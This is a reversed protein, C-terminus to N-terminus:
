QVTATLIIPTKYPVSTSSIALTTTTNTLTAARAVPVLMALLPVLALGVHNRFSTESHLSRHFSSTM